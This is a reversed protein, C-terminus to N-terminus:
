RTSLRLGTATREIVFHDRNKPRVLAHALDPASMILDAPRCRRHTRTERPAVAFNRDGIRYAQGAHSNNTIRFEIQASEPRGFMQVAYYKADASRAVAVGIEVVDPDLMSRRHGASRKWGEVMSRALSEATFGATSWEYAINEAVICYRYGREEARMEATKGDAEHSFADHQALYGAFYAATQALTPNVSLPARDNERRFANTHEVILEATRESDAVAPRAAAILTRHAPQDVYSSAGLAVLVLAAGLLVRVNRLTKM